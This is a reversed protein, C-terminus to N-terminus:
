PLPDLIPKADMCLLEGPAKGFSSRGRAKVLPEILQGLRHLLSLDWWRWTTAPRPTHKWADKWRYVSSVSSGVVAAVEASPM